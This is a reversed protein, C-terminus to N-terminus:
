QYAAVEDDLCYLAKSDGSAYVFRLPFSLGAGICKGGLCASGFRKCLTLARDAALRCRFIRVHFEPVARAAASHVTETLFVDVRVHVKCVLNTLFM